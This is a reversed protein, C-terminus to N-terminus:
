ARQNFLLRALNAREDDTKAETLQVSLSRGSIVWGKSKSEKWLSFVKWGLTLIESIATLIATAQIM